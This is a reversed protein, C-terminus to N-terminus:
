ANKYIQRLEKDSNSILLNIAERAQSKSFNGTSLNVIGQKRGFGLFGSVEGPFYCESIFSLDNKSGCASVWIMNEQGNLSLTLTPSCKQLENAKEVESAWDFEDFAKLAESASEIKKDESESHSHHAYQFNLKM